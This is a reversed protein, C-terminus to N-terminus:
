SVLITKSATKLMMQPIDRV